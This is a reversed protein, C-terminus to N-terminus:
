GVVRENGLKLVVDVRNVAGGDCRRNVLDESTRLANARGVDSIHTVVVVSGKHPATVARMVPIVRPGVANPHEGTVRLDHVIGASDVARGVQSEQVAHAARKVVQVKVSGVDGNDQATVCQHSVRVRQQWHAAADEGECGLRDVDAPGIHHSEGWVGGAR